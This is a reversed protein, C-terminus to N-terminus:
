LRARAGSAHAFIQGPMVAIIPSLWEPAAAIPMAQRGNQLLESDNSIVITDAGKEKVTGFMDRMTALANGQPAVLIVPYGRQLVAIPGHRFDAESYGESAITTLEKVKLGIECATAYNYGRGM